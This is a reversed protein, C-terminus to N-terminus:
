SKLMSEHGIHATPLSPTLYPRVGRFARISVRQSSVRAGRAGSCTELRVDRQLQRYKGTNMHACRTLIHAGIKDKRMFGLTHYAIRLIRRVTFEQRHKGRKGEYGISQTHTHARSRTRAHLELHFCCLLLVPSVWVCQTHKQAACPSDLSAGVSRSSYLHLLDAPSSVWELCIALPVSRESPAVPRFSRLFCEDYSEYITEVM